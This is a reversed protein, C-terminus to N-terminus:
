FLKIIWEIGTTALIMITSALLVGAALASLSKKKPFGFVYAAAAGTWGGTMPLPIGVFLVLGLVGWREYKGTFVHRARRLYKELWSGLHPIKKIFMDGCAHLGIFVMSSALINGAAAFLFTIVISQQYITLGLPIALRVEAIPLMALIFIKLQPALTTWFEM